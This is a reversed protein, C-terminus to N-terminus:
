ALVKAIEDKSWGALLTTRITEWSDGCRKMTAAKQFARTSICRRLQGERVRRRLEWLGQMEATTLGGAKGIDAELDVDYDVTLVIFRDLTSTDLPARGSYMPNAGTGFTNATAVIMTGDGKAVCPDQHRHAVWLHGNALAGNVTLLMNADFADLEDFLFLSRGKAYLTVFPSPVYEFRGGEGIPLLWGTLQSESAGASGHIAGFEVNMAKALQAATHTKGCGAPGVMLVNEGAKLYRLAREFIPHVRGEIKVPERDGDRVEIVRPAIGALADAIIQKVRAENVSAEPKYGALILDRITQLGDDHGNAQPKPEAPAPEDFGKWGGDDAVPEEADMGEAKAIDLKARVKALGDDGNYAIAMEILSLGGVFLSPLGQAVLWKRVTARNDSTVRLTGRPGLIEEAEAATMSPTRAM